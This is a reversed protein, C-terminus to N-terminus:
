VMAFTKQPITETWEEKGCFNTKNISHCWWILLTSISPCPTWPEWTQGLTNEGKSAPDWCPAYAPRSNQDEQWTGPLCAHVWLARTQLLQSISSSRWVPVETSTHVMVKSCSDKAQERTRWTETKWHNPDQERTAQHHKAWVEVSFRDKCVRVTQM